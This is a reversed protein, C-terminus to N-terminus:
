VKVSGLSHGSQPWSARSFGLNFTRV